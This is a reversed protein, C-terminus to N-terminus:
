VTTRRGGTLARYLAILIMSGVVAVLISVINFGNPDVRLGLLGAVFGGIIAGVIGIVIDTIISANDQGMLMSGLWGAIAGVVLWAIIDIM